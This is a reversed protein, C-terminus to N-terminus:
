SFTRTDADWGSEDTTLYRGTLSDWVKFTVGCVLTSGNGDAFAHGGNIAFLYLPLNLIGGPTTPQASFSGGDIIPVLRAIKTNGSAILGSVGGEAEDLNVLESSAGLLVQAGADVSTFDAAWNLLLEGFTATIARFEGPTPAIVYLQHLNRIETDILTVSAQHILSAAPTGGNLANSLATEIQANTFLNWWM